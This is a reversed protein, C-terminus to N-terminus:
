STDRENQDTHQSHKQEARDLAQRLLERGFPKTVCDLAGLRRAKKVVEDEVVGTALIIATNPWNASVREILWLGDHEPMRVGTVMIDAPQAAMMELATAADGATFVGYGWLDLWRRLLERQTEEDDVVLVTAAM